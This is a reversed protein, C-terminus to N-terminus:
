AGFFRVIISSFVGLVMGAIAGFFSSVTKNKTEVAILSKSVTNAETRIEDIRKELKEEMRRVDSKLDYLDEKFDKNQQELKENLNKVHIDLISKISGLLDEHNM